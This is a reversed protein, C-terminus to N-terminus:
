LWNCILLLLLIQETRAEFHPNLIGKKFLYAIPPGQQGNTPNGVDMGIWGLEPELAVKTTSLVDSLSTESWAVRLYLLVSDTMLIRRGWHKVCHRVWLLFGILEQYIFENVKFM